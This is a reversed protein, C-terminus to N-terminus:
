HSHKGLGPGSRTRSIPHTDPAPPVIDLTGAWARQHCCQNQPANGMLDCAWEPKKDLFYSM